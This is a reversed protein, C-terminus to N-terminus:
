RTRRRSAPSCAATSGPAQAADTQAIVDIEPGISAIFTMHRSPLGRHVGAPLGSLRYGVYREVARALEPAPRRTLWETQPEAM